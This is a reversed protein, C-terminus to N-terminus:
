QQFILPCCDQLSKKHHSISSFVLCHFSCPLLHLPLICGFCHFFLISQLSSAFSLLLLLGQAEISVSTNMVLATRWVQSQPDFLLSMSLSVNAHICYLQNKIRFSLSRNDVSPSVVPSLYILHSFDNDYLCMVHERMQLGYVYVTMHGLLSLLVRQLFLLSYHTCVM